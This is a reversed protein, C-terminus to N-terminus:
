YSTEGKAIQNKFHTRNNGPATPDEQSGDGCPRQHAKASVDVMQASGDAAIRLRNM